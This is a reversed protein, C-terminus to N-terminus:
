STHKKLFDSLVSELYKLEVEKLGHHCGVLFGNQMVEDACPFQEATVSKALKKFAPQRLVNGTFIPRTQINHEELYRTIEMRTFPAHPRITLPFALWNTVVRPDQRPLIFFSEYRKFFKYLRKFNNLRRATFVKLRKLQELGFAANLESSQFNYGIESFVFKADYPQAGIRGAFRKKIDESKEYAGFLTSDRGWCSKILITHALATDKTCVMGGSGAATIIHSAYFSTTTIDSYLGTPKGAFTAGLTDCSDEIFFLKHKKAIAQLKQLDPINGLLSPIMLARTKRTIAKEVKRADIVYTGPVVDVFVPTLRKQVLPALTTSFTLIPTIVESGAPLDLAEVALLNASSGSNVMIGHSKGFIQSITREFKKVREGPGIKYPNSLVENVAAVEEKGYVASAYLVRIPSKKKKSM